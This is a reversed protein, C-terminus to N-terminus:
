LGRTGDKSEQEDSVWVNSQKDVFFGHPFVFMGAGWHKLLKGSTDFEVIPDLKSDGCNNAGCRDYAWVNGDPGIDVGATSGWKRGDPLQAWNTVTRYPNPLDNRPQAGAKARARAGSLAIMAVAAAAMTFRLQNGRPM